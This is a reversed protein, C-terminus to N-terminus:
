DTGKPGHNGAKNSAEWDHISSTVVIVRAEGAQAATQKLDDLLLNTLLLHGALFM